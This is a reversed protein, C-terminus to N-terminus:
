AIPLDYYSVGIKLGSCGLHVIMGTPFCDYEVDEILRLTLPQDAHGIQDDRHQRGPKM